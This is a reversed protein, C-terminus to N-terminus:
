VSRRLSRALKAWIMQFSVKLHVAKECEDGCDDKRGDADGRCAEGRGIVIEAERQVHLAPITGLDVRSEM